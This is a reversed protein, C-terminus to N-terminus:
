NKKNAQTHGLSKKKLSLRHLFQGFSQKIMHTRTFDVYMFFVLFLCFSLLLEKDTMELSIKLSECSCMCMSM